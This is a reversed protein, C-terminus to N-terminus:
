ELGEGQADGAGVDGSAAGSGDAVSGDCHPRALRWTSAPHAKTTMAASIAKAATLTKLEATPPPAAQAPAKATAARDPIPTPM